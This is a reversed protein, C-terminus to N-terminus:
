NSIKITGKATKSKAGSQVILASPQGKPVNVTFTENSVERKFGAAKKEMQPTTYGMAVDESVGTILFVDVPYDSSVVIKMAQDAGQPDFGWAKVSNQIDLNFALEKNLRGRCGSATLLIGALLTMFMKQTTTM